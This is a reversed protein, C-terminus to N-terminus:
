ECQCVERPVTRGGSDLPQLACERHRVRRARGRPVGVTPPRTTSTVFGADRIASAPDLKRPNLFGAPPQPRLALARNTRRAAPRGFARGRGRLREVPHRVRREQLARSRPRGLRRARELEPRRRRLRLDRRAGPRVPPRADLRRRAARTGRGEGGGHPQRVASGAGPMRGAGDVQMRWDRRRRSLGARASALRPLLERPAPRRCRTRLPGRAARAACDHVAPRAHPLAPLRGACGLYSLDGFTPTAEVRWRSGAVPSTAGFVATDHVLAISGEASTAPAGASRRLRGTALTRLGGAAVMRQQVARDFAVHRVGALFEVRMARSFPYSVIGALRGHFQRLRETERLRAGNPEGVDLTQLRRGRIAPAVELVGGWNWRSARNLYRVQLAADERRNGLQIAAAVAQESVIDGFLLSAGGRFFKGFRGGGSMFYPQAVTHLSLDPQYPAEDVAASDPLGIEPNALLERLRADARSGAPRARPRADPDVEEGELAERGDLVRLELRGARLTTFALRPASGAVSIVPSTATLGTVGTRARTLRRVEGTARVMRYIDSVGDRDSVFFVSAGDASFEPDVHRAGEFAATERISQTSVDLEALALPGFELTELDTDFRDTVFAITAGDPSWSPHLDAFPDNTLAVLADVELDYVFLDSVGGHLGSFVIRRGDPAFAPTLVEGLQPLRVERIMRGTVPDVVVLAPAGRRLAAYVFRGDAAWSGASQVPQLSETETSGTTTAIKRVVRGTRVEALFLDISLRDRESLFVVHRGDPSLAPSINLRGRGAVPVPPPRTAQSPPPFAAAIEAHWERSLSELDTGLAAGVRDLARKPQRRKLVAATTAEGFRGAVYSWLAQGLRYPSARRALEAIPPLRDHVLGDRIWAATLPDIGGHSLYEAMGEMVWLPLQLSTKHRRAIDYQFAHVIEHGLVRDTDGLSAAFPMAIRRRLSETVGGITDDLIGGVVKTHAFDRHSGYLIVAQRGELQHDLLRSLRVYWREALRAAIRSAAEEAPYHYIDFHATRLVRFRADRYEVKNRGFTQAAADTAGCALSCLLLARALGRPAALRGM